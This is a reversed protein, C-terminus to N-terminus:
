SKQQLVVLKTETPLTAKTIALKELTEPEKGFAKIFDNLSTESDYGMPIVIGPEIQNILKINQKVDVLLIDIGDLEEIQDQTLEDKFDGLHAIRLDEAQLVFVNNHAFSYGSVSVGKIEYEGPESIVFPNNKLRTIDIRKPDSVSITVVDAEMKPINPSPDTLVNVNGTKFKLCSNALYNIIM